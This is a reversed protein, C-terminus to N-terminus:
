CSMCAMTPSRRPCTRSRAPAVAPTLPPPGDDSATWAGAHRQTAGVEAPLSPTYIRLFNNPATTWGNFVAPITDAAAEAYCAFNWVEDSGTAQSIDKGGVALDFNRLGAAVGPNERLEEAASLSTYARFIQWDEDPVATPPPVAGYVNAIYEAARLGGTQGGQDPVSTNLKAGQM